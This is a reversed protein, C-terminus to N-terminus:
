LFNINKSLLTCDIFINGPKKNILNNEMNKTINRRYIKYKINDKIYEASLINIINKNNYDKLDKLNNKSYNNLEDIRGLLFKASNLVKKISIKNNNDEKISVEKIQFKNIFYKEIKNLQIYKNEKLKCIFYTRLYIM